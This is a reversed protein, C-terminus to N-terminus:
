PGGVLVFPCKMPASKLMREVVREAPPAIETVLDRVLRKNSLPQLIMERPELRATCAALAAMALEMMCEKCANANICSFRIALGPDLNARIWRLGDLVSQGPEFPVEYTTWRGTASATGRWIKLKAIARMASSRANRRTDQRAHHRARGMARASQVALGAANGSFGRAPTRRPKRQACGCGNSGRAGCPAHEASRVM